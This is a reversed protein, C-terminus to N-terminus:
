CLICFPRQRVHVLQNFLTFHYAGVTYMFLTAVPDSIMCKLCESINHAPIFGIVDFLPMTVIEGYRM